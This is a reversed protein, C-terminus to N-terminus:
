LLLGILAMHVHHFLLSIQHHQLQFVPGALKSFYRGLHPLLADVDVVDVTGYGWGAAFTEKDEARLVHLLGCFDEFRDGSVSGIFIRVIPM